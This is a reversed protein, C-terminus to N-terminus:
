SGNLLRRKLRTKAQEVPIGNIIDKTLKVFQREVEKPLGEMLRYWEAQRRILKAKKGNM